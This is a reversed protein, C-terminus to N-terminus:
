IVLPLETLSRIRTAAAHAGVYDGDRDILVPRIQAMAAGEVDKAVSDGVHVAREPPCGALELAADFVAPAPKDAGVSASSVVGDLLSGLGADELVQPLSCDWNSAVVLKLGRARLAGLAPAADPYAHFRISDLMAARVTALDLDPDGVAQRMVEACRDRLDGLSQADRGEVHHAIYYAIEARFAAEARELGIGLRAALRPGPPEMSVLTGFSDLLV